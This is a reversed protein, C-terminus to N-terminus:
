VEVVSWNFWKDILRKNQADWLPWLVDLLSFIGCTVGGIVSPLLVRVIAMGWGIPQGDADKVLRLGIKSKGITQGKNGQRVIQNWIGFVLAWLYGAGIFIIGIAGIGLDGDSNSGAAAILFGLLLLALYPGGSCLADILYALFRRGWTAGVPAVVGYGPTPGSPAYAFGGGAPQYPTYPNAPQGYGPQGAGGYQGPQGFGGPQGYGGGAQGYPPAQGYGGSQDTQGYQPTQGYGGQGYGGTQGAQGYQGTQGSSAAPEAPAAPTAPAESAGRPRTTHTWASGDWWREQAEDSPDPYWGSEAM